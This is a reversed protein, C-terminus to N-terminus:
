TSIGSTGNKWDNKKSPTLLVRRWFCKNTGMTVSSRNESHWIKLPINLQKIQMCSLRCWIDSLRSYRVLDCWRVTYVDDCTVVFYGNWDFLKFLYVFNNDNTATQGPTRTSIFHRWFTLKESLLKTIHECICAMKYTSQRMSSAFTFIYIYISEMLLTRMSQSNIFSQATTTQKWRANM